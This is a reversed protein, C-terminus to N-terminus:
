KEHIERATRKKRQSSIKRQGIKLGQNSWKSEIDVYRGQTVEDVTMTEVFM